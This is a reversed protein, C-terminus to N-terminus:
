NRIKLRRAHDVDSVIQHIEDALKGLDLESLHENQLEELLAETDEKDVFHKLRKIHREYDTVRKRLAQIDNTFAARENSRKDDLKRVRKTAQKIKM